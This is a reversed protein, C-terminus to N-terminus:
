KKLTTVSRSTVRRVDQDGFLFSLLAFREGSTVEAVEHLLSCSFVLAEGTAPRYRVPGYEPFSIEGGEYGENLNLSLAFHRHATSPSLNDRHARFYGRTVSDYRVIKFGEFQTAPFWFARRVEPLVCRGVTLVLMKMLRADTVTYDRRRKLDSRLASTRTQHESAEVGTEQNGCRSWVEMLHECVEPELVRPVLLVPAQALITRSEVSALESVVALVTAALARDTGAETSVTRIVRLSPDLVVVRGKGEPVGYAESVAGQGDIFVPVPLRTRPERPTVVFTPLEALAEFLASSDRDANAPLFVLATPAGGACGYFRTPAGRCHLVFDPAREGRGLKSHVM